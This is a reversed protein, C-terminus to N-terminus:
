IREVDLAVHDVFKQSAPGDFALNVLPGGALVGILVRTNTRTRQGYQFYCLLVPSVMNASNNDVILRVRWRRPYM